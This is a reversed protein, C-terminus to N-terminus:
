GTREFKDGLAGGASGSYGRRRQLLVLNFVHRVEQRGSTQYVVFLCLRGSIVELVGKDKQFWISFVRICFTLGKIEAKENEDTGQAKPLKTSVHERSQV